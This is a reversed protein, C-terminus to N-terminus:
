PTNKIKSFVSKTINAKHIMKDIGGSGSLYVDTANVIADCHM